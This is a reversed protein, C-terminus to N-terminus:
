WVNCVFRYLIVFENFDSLRHHVASMKLDQDKNTISQLPWVPWLFIVTSKNKYYPDSVRIYSPRCIRHQEGTLLHIVELGKVNVIFM